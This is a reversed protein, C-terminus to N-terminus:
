LPSALLNRGRSGPADRSSANMKATQALAACGPVAADSDPTENIRVMRAFAAMCFRNVPLRM